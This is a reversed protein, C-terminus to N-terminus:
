ILRDSDAEIETLHSVPVKITIIEETIYTLEIAAHIPVSEFMAANIAAVRDHYGNITGSGFAGVAAQTANGTFAQTPSGQSVSQTFQTQAALDAISKLGASLSLAMVASRPIARIKAKINISNTANLALRGKASVLQAGLTPEKISLHTIEVFAEGYIDDVYSASCKGILHVKGLYTSQGNPEKFEAQVVLIVPSPPLTQAATRATSGIPCFTTVLPTVKAFSAAAIQIERFEPTEPAQSSSESPSRNNRNNKSNDNGSEDKESKENEFPFVNPMNFDFDNANSPQGPKPQSARPQAGIGLRFYRSPIRPKQTTSLDTGDFDGPDVSWEDPSGLDSDELRDTRYKDVVIRKEQDAMEQALKKLEAANKKDSQLILTEIRSFGSKVAERDEDQQNHLGEVEIQTVERWGDKDHASEGTNTNRTDPESAKSVGPEIGSSTDEPSFLFKTALFLVVLIALAILVFNRSNNNKTEDAYPSSM